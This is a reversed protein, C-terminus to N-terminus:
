LTGSGNNVSPRLPASASRLGSTTGVNGCYPVMPYAFENGLKSGYYKVTTLPYWSIPALM